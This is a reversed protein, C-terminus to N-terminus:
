IPVWSRGGFFAWGWGYNPGHRNHGFPQISWSAAQYPSLGHGLRRQTLHHRLEGQFPCLGWNETWTYQPWIAPHIFIGSPVSTSMLGPWMTNSRAGRRFPWLLGGGRKPGHRNHGRDMESVASSKNFSYSFRGQVYTAYCVGNQPYIKLNYSCAPILSLNPLFGIFVVLFCNHVSSAWQLHEWIEDM